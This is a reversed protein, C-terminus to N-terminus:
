CYMGGPDARMAAVVPITCFQQVVSQVLAAKYEDDPLMGALDTMQTCLAGGGESLLFKRRKLVRSIGEVGESVLATNSTQMENSAPTNLIDEVMAVAEFRTAPTYTWITPGDMWLIHWEDRLDTHVMVPQHSPTHINAVLLQVMAQYVTGAVSGSISVSEPASGKSQRPSLETKLAQM